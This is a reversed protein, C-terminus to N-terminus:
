INNGYTEGVVKSVDDENMGSVYTTFVKGQSDYTYDSYFGNSLEKVTRGNGDVYSKSLEEGKENYTTTIFADNVVMCQVGDFVDTSGYTYENKTIKTDSGVKLTTTKNRNLSDYTYTTIRGCEDTSEM